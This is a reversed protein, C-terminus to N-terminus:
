TRCDVEVGELRLLEGLDLFLKVLLELVQGRRERLEVARLALESFAQSAHITSRFGRLTLKLDRETVAGVLVHRDRALWAALSCASIHIITRTVSEFSTRTGSVLERYTRPSNVFVSVTRTSM